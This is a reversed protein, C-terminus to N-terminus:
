GRMRAAAIVAQGLSLGGDNAPVERHIYVGFGAQNLLSLTRRLLTINQWVGGSLAVENIGIESKIKLCLELVCAALGNHFRASIKSVYVGSRVDEILAEVATRVQVQDHDVEFLYKEGEAPDQPAEFEIAAQGEYNVEQRVGALAAAADFLRGMSSTMPTNIKRELQARLRARDEASFSSVPGLMEDWDLGLSWM